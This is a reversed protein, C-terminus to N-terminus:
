YGDAPDGDADLNESDVDETDTDDLGEGSQPVNSPPLIGDQEVTVDTPNRPEPEDSTTSCGIAFVLPAALGLAALRRAVTATPTRM